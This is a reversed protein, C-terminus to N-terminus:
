VSVLIIEGLLCGERFLALNDIASAVLGVSMVNQGPRLQIARSQCAIGGIRGTSVPRTSALATGLDAMVVALASTIM